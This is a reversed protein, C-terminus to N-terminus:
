SLDECAARAADRDWRWEHRDGNCALVVQLREADDCALWARGPDGNLAVCAIAALMPQQSGHAYQLTQTPSM